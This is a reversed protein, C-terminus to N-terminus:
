KKFENNIHFQKVSDEVNMMNTQEAWIQYNIYQYNYLDVENVNSVEYYIYKNKLDGKNDRIFYTVRFVDGGIPPRELREHCHAINMYFDIQNITTLGMRSLENLIPEIDIKGYVVIPKHYLLKGEGSSKEGYEKDLEDLYGDYEYESGENTYENEADIEEEKKLRWYIIEPSELMHVEETMADVLSHEPNNPEWMNPSMPRYM